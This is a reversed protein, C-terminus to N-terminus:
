PKAHIITLRISGPKRCRGLKRVGVHQIISGVAFGRRGVIHVRTCWSLPFCAPLSILNALAFHLGRACM